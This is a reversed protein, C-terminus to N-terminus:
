KMMIVVEDEVVMVMEEVGGVRVMKAVEEVKGMEGRSMIGIKIRTTGGIMRSSIAVEDAMEEGKIMRGIMMMTKTERDITMRAEVSEM